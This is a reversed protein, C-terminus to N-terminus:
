NSYLRILIRNVLPDSGPGPGVRTFIFPRQARVRRHRSFLDLHLEIMYKSSPRRSSCIFKRLPFAHLIIFLFRKHKLSLRPSTDFAVNKFISNQFTDFTRPGNLSDPQKTKLTADQGYLSLEGFM